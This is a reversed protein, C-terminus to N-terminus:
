RNREAAALEAIRLAAQAPLGDELLFAASLGAWALVWNLLRGRELHAAAAVIDLQRALRGPTAATGADPNCFLNAYDFTREGLLGKPDIALWGRWGFDLVNGHHIDGHLVGVERPTALLKSAVTAALSMLGGQMEAVPELATFWRRLPTLREPPPLSRPEHLSIVTACLIRSAEDDRGSRALHALSDGDRARELLLADEAYALVRAAGQGDWWRMLEGGIKEEDVAALKLMAPVRGSRVPLLRSTPTIIPEGDPTLGWRDLYARFMTVFTVYAPM